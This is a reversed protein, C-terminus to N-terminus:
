IGHWVLLMVLVCSCVFYVGGNVSFDLLNNRRKARCANPNLYYRNVVFAIRIELNGDGSFVSDAKRKIKRALQDIEETEFPALHDIPAVNKPDNMVCGFGDLIPNEDAM